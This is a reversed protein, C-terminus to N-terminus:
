KSYAQTSDICGRRVAEDLLHRVGRRKFYLAAYNRQVPNGNFLFHRIRERGEASAVLGLAHDLMKRSSFTRNADLRQMLFDVDARNGAAARQELQSLSVSPMVTSKPPLSNHHTTM